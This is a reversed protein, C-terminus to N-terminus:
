EKSNLLRQDEGDLYWWAIEVLTTAAIRTEYGYGCGIFADMRTIMADLYLYCPNNFSFSDYVVLGCRSLSDV